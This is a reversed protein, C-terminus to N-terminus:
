PRPLFSAPSACSASSHRSVPRVPSKSRNKNILRIIPANLPSTVAFLLVLPARYHCQVPCPFPEQSLRNPPILQKCDSSLSSVGLYRILRFGGFHRAAVRSSEFFGVFEIAKM